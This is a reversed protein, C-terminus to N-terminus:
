EFRAAVEVMGHFQSMLTVSSRWVVLDLPCIEAWIKWVEQGFEVCNLIRKKFYEYKKADM